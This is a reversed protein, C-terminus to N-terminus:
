NRLLHWGEWALFGLPEGEVGILNGDQFLIERLDNQSGGAVPLPVYLLQLLDCQATDGPPAESRQRLAVLSARGIDALIAVARRKM